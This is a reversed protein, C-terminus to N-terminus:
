GQEVSLWRRERGGRGGSRGPLELVLWAEQLEFLAGLVDVEPLCAKLQAESAEGLPDRLERLAVLVTRATPSLSAEPALLAAGFSPLAASAAPGPFPFVDDSGFETTNMGGGQGRGPPLPWTSSHGSRRFLVEWQPM